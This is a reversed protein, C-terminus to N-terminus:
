EDKHIRFGQVVRTIVGHPSPNDPNLGARLSLHYALLQPFVIEFPTRLFDPLEAACAPVQEDSVTHAVGDPVVSVLHGIKKNRLETLLDEEYRRIKADSSLVSLVLTDEALFSMPGHRLGLFTEPLAVIKGATMELIKLSIERAMPFLPTSALVVVRAAARSAIQGAKQSFEPLLSQVRECLAPLVNSLQPAHHLCMGALVLNSFSSTMVLSQDNTRGDLLVTRVGEARALKGAANCTIALHKVGPVERQVKELVAISEPSDGSRALSVLLGDKAFFPKLDVLLDTTPVALAGNWAAAVAGAAYASTGAGTIVAPKASILEAPLHEQLRQLTTPWLSPQQFIEAYTIAGPAPSNNGVSASHPM